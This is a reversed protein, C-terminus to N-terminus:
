FLTSMEEELCNILFDTPVRKQPIGCWFEYLAAKFDAENTATEPLDLDLKQFLIESPIHDAIPKETEENVLKSIIETFNLLTKEM